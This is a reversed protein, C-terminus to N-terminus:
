SENRNILVSVRSTSATTTCAVWYAGRNSIPIPTGAPLYFAHAYTAAGASLMATELSSCIYVDNDIALIVASQRNPDQPLLPLWPNASSLKICRAVGTEPMEQRVHVAYDAPDIGSPTVTADDIQAQEADAYKAARGTMSDNNM